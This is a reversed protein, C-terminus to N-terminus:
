DDVQRVEISSADIAPPIPGGTAWDLLEAIHVMPRDLGSALQTICGINSTAIVDADTAEINSIKRAGLANAIEPQLINYVGASGCCLHEEDIRRVDFGAARLLEPPPAAANQGHLLSCPPHYAVVPKNFKKAIPMGADALFEGIDQVLSAVQAAKDVYEPDERLMHGYNKLTTGCGSITTLIASAGHQEIVAQWLDIMKRAAAVAEQEQGLHFALSGCCGEDPIEAVGYGARHLLRVTAARINPQLVSEACGRM